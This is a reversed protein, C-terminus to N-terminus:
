KKFDTLSTYRKTKGTYESYQYIRQYAASGGEEASPAKSTSMPLTILERFQNGLQMFLAISAEVWNQFSDAIFRRTQQRTLPKIFTLNRSSIHYEISPQFIVVEYDSNTAQMFLSTYLEDPM